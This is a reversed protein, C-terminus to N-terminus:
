IQPETLAKLQTLVWDLQEPTFNELPEFPFQKLDEFVTSFADPSNAADFSLTCNYEEDVWLIASPLAPLFFCTASQFPTQAAAIVDGKTLNDKATSRISAVLTQTNM